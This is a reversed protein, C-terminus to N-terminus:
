LRMWRLCPTGKKWRAIRKGRVDQRACNQQESTASSHRPLAKNLYPKEARRIASSQSWRSRLCGLRKSPDSRLPKRLVTATQHLTALQVSHGGRRSVPFHTGRSFEQSELLAM